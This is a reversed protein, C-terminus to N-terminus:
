ELAKADTIREVQLVIERIDLPNQEFRVKKTLGERVIRNVTLISEGM